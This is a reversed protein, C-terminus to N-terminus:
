RCMCVCQGDAGVAACASLCVGEYVCVTVPSIRAESQVLLRAIDTQALRLNQSLNRLVRCAQEDIASRESQSIDLLGGSAICGMVQGCQQSLGRGM